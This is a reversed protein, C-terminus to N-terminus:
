PQVSTGQLINKMMNMLLLVHARQDFIQQQEEKREQEVVRQEKERM